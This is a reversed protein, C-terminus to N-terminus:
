RPIGKVTKCDICFEQFWAHWWIFVFYPYEEQVYLLVANWGSNPGPCPEVVPGLKYPIRKQKIAFFRDVSSRAMKKLATLLETVILWAPSAKM